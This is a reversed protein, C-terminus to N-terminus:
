DRPSPSTYLLCTVFGHSTPHSAELMSPLAGGALIRQGGVTQQGVCAQIQLKNIVTGKSGSSIMETFNRARSGREAVTGAVDMAHQMKVMSKEEDATSWDARDLLRHLEEAALTSTTTFCDDMSCTFGENFLFSIALRQADSIFRVAVDGGFDRAVTAILAACSKKTFRGHVITGDLVKLGNAEFFLECPLIVSLLDRGRVYGSASHFDRTPYKIAMYHQMAEEVDISRNEDSLKYLGIIVDQIM